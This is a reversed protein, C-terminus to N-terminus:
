VHLTEVLSPSVSMADNRVEDVRVWIGPPLSTAMVALEKVLHFRDKPLRTSSESQRLCHWVDHTIPLAGRLEPITSPLWSVHKFALRECAQAYRQELLVSPDINKGKRQDMQSSPATEPQRIVISIARDIDDKAALIDGCLSTGQIAEEEGEETDMLQSVGAMFSECQKSLKKFYDLLAPSRELSAEGGENEWTIPKEGWMWAELGSGTKMVCREEVLIGVTLECDALSRLLRLMAQYVDKRAIWDTVSDNRLLNALVDLLRSTSILHGISPHPLMDYIKPEDIYPHPLLDSLLMMVRVTFADKQIEKKHVAAETPGKARKSSGGSGRSRSSTSYGTGGPGVTDQSSDVCNAVVERSRAAASAREDIYQKDFSGLVEFIAIARGEACCEEVPCPTKATSGKCAM